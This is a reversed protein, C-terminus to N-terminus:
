QFWDGIFGNKGYEQSVGAFFTGKGAFAQEALAMLQFIDVSGGAFFPKNM